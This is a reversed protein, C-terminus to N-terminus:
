SVHCFFFGNRATPIYNIRCALGKAFCGNGSCIKESTFCTGFECGVDIAAFENDNYVCLLCIECTLLEFLFEVAVMRTVDASELFDGIFGEHCCLGLESHSECDLSHKGFVGEASGSECTKFYESACLVIVLLQIWLAM